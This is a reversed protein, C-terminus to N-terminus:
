MMGGMGMRNRRRMDMAFKLLFGVAVGVAVVDPNNMVAQMIGATSSAM